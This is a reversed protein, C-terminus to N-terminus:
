PKQANSKVKLLLHGRAPLSLDAVVQDGDQKSAAGEIQMPGAPLGIDTGRLRLQKRVPKQELNFVNITSARLDPLTHAHITEDIGYFVGQTYFRKLSLYARMARKDAEWVTPGPKGGVGLHRCTSAYWWFMLAHDNDQKLNIHLYLPISYALNYYYLSLARGSVLDDMANWMFEHGWLCDFSHPRADGFYTPTYHVGCPGSIFDHVEILTQPYHKKVRQVLELIAKAHEERTSPIQHGHTKDYCPGSYQTSDFMMFAVGHRCLELLRKEKTDLFAPSAFCHIETRKGDKNVVRAEVPCAAPDAFTPLMGGLSMWLSVKLGYEDRMMKVFSEMSGLRAADWIHHSPGTDWGPDMYLAQCGLEKAKGAEIKMHKLTYLEQLLKQNAAYSYTAPTALPQCKFFYENDFLENWHVPPNYGKPTRCGKSDVYRRYAYYAQKWDGAVAQLRTQGFRFSKGPELRAAGEPHGHKWRGAGGFRVVTETGRTVSEMLSWEMADPNHKAILLADTGNSWVWGEAGWIPTQQVPEFWGSYSLGHGVVERLPLEQLQGNTERRYPVPCFHVDATDPSWTDGQRIHKTFGCKFDATDLPRDTANRIAIEELIVGPENAPATFTQEVEIPGLRGKFSISRGGDKRNMIAPATEMKPFEGGSWAYDRDALARGSKLDRLSRANVGSKTEVVLELRGNSLVAKGCDPNWTLAPGESPSSGQAIAQHPNGIVILLTTGVVATAVWCVRHLQNISAGM